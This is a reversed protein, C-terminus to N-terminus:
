YPFSRRLIFVVSTNFKTPIPPFFSLFIVTAPLLCSLPLFDVYIPCPFPLSGPRGQLSSLLSVVKRRVVLFPVDGLIFGRLFSLLFGSFFPLSLPVLSDLKYSFYLPPPRISPLPLPPIIVGTKSPPTPRYNSIFFVAFIQCSFHFLVQLAYGV